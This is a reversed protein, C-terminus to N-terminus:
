SSSAAGSIMNLFYNSLVQGPNTFYFAIRFIQNPFSAPMAATLSQWAQEICVSTTKVRERQADRCITQPVDTFIQWHSWSLRIDIGLM